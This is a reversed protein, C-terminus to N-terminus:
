HFLVRMILAGGVASSGTTFPFFEKQSKPAEAEHQAYFQAPKQEREGESGVRRSNPTGLALRHDCLWVKIVAPRHLRLM